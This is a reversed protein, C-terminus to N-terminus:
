PSECRLARGALRHSCRSMTFSVTFSPVHGDAITVTVPPVPTRSLPMKLHMAMDTGMAGFTFRLRNRNPVPNQYDDNGGPCQKVSGSHRPKNPFSLPGGLPGMVDAITITVTEKTVPPKPKVTKYNPDCFSTPPLPCLTASLFVVASSSITFDLKRAGSCVNAALAPTSTPTATPTNPSLRSSTSTRTPTATSVQPQRTATPTASVAPAVCQTKNLSDCVRDAYFAGRLSQCRLDTAGVCHGQLQCCGNVQAFAVPATSAVALLGCSLLIIISRARRNVAYSDIGLWCGQRM